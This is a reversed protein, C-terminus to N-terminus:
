ETFRWFYQFPVGYPSLGTTIHGFTFGAYKLWRIHDTNRTDVTNAIMSYRADEMQVIEPTLRLFAVKHRKILNSGVLWGFAMSSDQPHPAFGFLAALGDVSDIAYRQDPPTMQYSWLLVTRPNRGTLASLERQDALRLKIVDVDARHAPRINMM